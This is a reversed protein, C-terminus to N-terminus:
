GHWLFSQNLIGIGMGGERDPGHTQSYWVGPRVDQQCFGEQNVEEDCYWYMQVLFESICCHQKYM